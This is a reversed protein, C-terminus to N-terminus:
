QQPEELAQGDYLRGLRIGAVIGALEAAAIVNEVDEFSASIPLQRIWDSGEQKCALRLQKPDFGLEAIAEDYGIEKARMASAEVATLIERGQVLWGSM